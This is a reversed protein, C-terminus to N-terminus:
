RTLTPELFPGWLPLRFPGIHNLRLLIGSWESCSFFGRAYAFCPAGSGSTTLAIILVGSTGDKNGIRLVFSPEYSRPTGLFLARGSRATRDPTLAPGAAM